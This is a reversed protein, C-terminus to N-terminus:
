EWVYDMFKNNEFFNLCVVKLNDEVKKLDSVLNDFSKDTSIGELKNFNDAVLIGSHYKDYNKFYESINSVPGDSYFKVDYKKILEYCLYYSLASHCSGYPYEFDITNDGYFSNFNLYVITDDYNELKIRFSIYPHEKSGNKKYDDFLSNFEERDKINNFQISLEGSM